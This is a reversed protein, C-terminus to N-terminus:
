GAPTTACYLDLEAYGGPTTYTISTPFGRGDTTLSNVTTGAPAIFNVGRVGVNGGVSEAIFPHDNPCGTNIAVQAQGAPDTGTFLPVVVVNQPATLSAPSVVNHGAGITGHDGISIDRCASIAHTGTTNINCNVPTNDHGDNNEAQASGALCLGSALVAAAAALSRRAYRM